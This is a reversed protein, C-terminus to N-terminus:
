ANQTKEMDAETQANHQTLNWEHKKDLLRTSRRVRTKQINIKDFQQLKRELEAPESRLGLLAWGWIVHTSNSKQPRRAFPMASESSFDALQKRGM